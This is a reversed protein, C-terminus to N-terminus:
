SKYKGTKTNVKFARNYYYNEDEENYNEEGQTNENSKEAKTSNM